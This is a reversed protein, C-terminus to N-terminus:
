REPDAKLRASVFACLRNLKPKWDLHAVAFAHLGRTIDDHRRSVESAFSCLADLEIPEDHNPLHLTGPLGAPIDTDQYALVTPMGAALYERTKLPSAESLGARHLALSAIAVHCRRMLAGIDAHAVQGHEIVRVLPQRAALVAILRRDSPSIGGGALHLTVPQSHTMAMLGWLLRDLGMWPSFAGAAFWLRLEGGDWRAPPTLLASTAVGNGITISHQVGGRKAEIARIEETVAVLGKVRSLLRPGNFREAQLKLWSGPGRVLLRLEDVMSTHHETFIPPWDRFLRDLPTLDSAGPYRLVIADYRGADISRRMCDLRLCARELRAPLYRPPPLPLCQYDEGQISTFGSISSFTLPLHALRAAVSEEVLKRQLGPWPRPDPIWNLHLIRKFSLTM